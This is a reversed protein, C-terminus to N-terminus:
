PRKLAEEELTVCTSRLALLGEVPQDGCQDRVPKRQHWATTSVLCAERKGHDSSEEEVEDGGLVASADVARHLLEEFQDVM